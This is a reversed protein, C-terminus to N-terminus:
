EHSNDIACSSSSKKVEKRTEELRGYLEKLEELSWKRYNLARKELEKFRKEGIFKRWEVPRHTYFKHRKQILCVANDLDWRTALYSRPIIHACQLNDTGRTEECIEGAKIKIIESFIKDCKKKWYSKKKEYKSM